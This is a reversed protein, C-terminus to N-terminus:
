FHGQEKRSWKRHSKVAKHSQNQVLPKIKAAPHQFTNKHSHFIHPIHSLLETSEKSSQSNSPSDPKVLPWLCCSLCDGATGCRLLDEWYPEGQSGATEQSCGVKRGTVQWDQRSMCGGGRGTGLLFALNILLTLKWYTLKWYIEWTTSSDLSREGFSISPSIFFSVNCTLM